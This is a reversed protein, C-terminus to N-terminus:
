KYINGKNERELFCCLGHLSNMEPTCRSTKYSFNKYLNYVRHALTTFALLSMGAKLGRRQGGAAAGRSMGARLTWGLGEM